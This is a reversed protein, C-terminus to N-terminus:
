EACDDPLGGLIICKDYRSMNSIAEDIEAKMSKNKKANEKLIKSYNTEAAKYGRNYHYDKMALVGLGFAFFALFIYSFLPNNM